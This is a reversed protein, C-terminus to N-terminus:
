VDCRDTKFRKFRTAKFNFRALICLMYPLKRGSHATARLATRMVMLPESSFGSHSSLVLSLRSLGSWHAGFIRSIRAYPPDVCSTMLMLM